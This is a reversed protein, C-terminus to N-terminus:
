ERSTLGSLPDGDSSNGLSHPSFERGASGVQLLGDPVGGQEKV